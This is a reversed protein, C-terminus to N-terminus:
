HFVAQMWVRGPEILVPTLFISLPAFTDSQLVYSGQAAAKDCPEFFLSFPRRLSTPGHRGDARGEDRVERLIWIHRSGDVATGAFRAGQLPQLDERRLRALRDQASTDDM